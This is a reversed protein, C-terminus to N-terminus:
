PSRRGPGGKTPAAAAPQRALELAMAQRQLQAQMAEIRGNLHAISHQAAEARSAEQAAADRSSAAQARAEAEVAEARAARAAAAELQVALVAAQQNADIRAQREMALEARLSALDSELRPLAELRLLAKALEIRAAATAEHAQNVDNSADALAGEIQAQRGRLTALETGQVASAEAQLALQGTLRENDTALAAAEHQQEALAAQLAAKGQELQQALYDLLARELAPPLTLLEGARREPAALWQQLLKHVTGMSGTHGLQERVSRSTPKAGTAQLAAAAAAVQEYTITAERGM